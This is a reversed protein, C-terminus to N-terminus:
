SSSKSGPGQGEVALIRYLLRSKAESPSDYDIFNYQRLDFHVAALEKKSVMWIVNRGLGHMFGAEYYVGARQNTFDAVLFRSQKLEAVIQDDIRKVHEQLDIRVPHYGAEEVVPKIAEHWLVDQSKDFWMAVFVNRTSKYSSAELEEVREFGDATVLYDDTSGKLMVIYRRGALQELLFNAEDGDKAYVLPYNKNANFEVPTGPPVQPDALLRLLGDMKERVTKLVPMAALFGDVSDATVMPVNRDPYTRFFASLLYLANAKRADDVVLKAVRVRGCCPCEGAYSGEDTAIDYGLIFRAKQECLPCKELNGLNAM